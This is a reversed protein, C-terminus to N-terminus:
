GVASSLGSLGTTGDLKNFWPQILEAFEPLQRDISQDRSLDLGRTYRHFEKFHEEANPVPTNMFNLVAELQTTWYDRHVQRISADPIYARLKDTIAQKVETPLIKLNLQWPLHLMNFNTHLDQRVIYDFIEDLYYINLNNITICICFWFNKNRQRAQIFQELNAGVLDWTSSSRIYGCRDKIDDISLDFFVTKFNSLLKEHDTNWITGNTNIHLTIDKATNQDVAAQLVEFNKKILMPEAGYFDIYRTNPLWDKLTEWVGQNEDRYSATIRRWRVLYDSYSINENPGANLEWDERYWQSSVEPNCTRCKMNCTNGMKLDLIQPQDERTGLHGWAQNFYMRRSTKGAHEDDWCAQCNSHEQDNELATQIEKRTPSDWAEQLTNTDLYLQEGQANELYKRSHCCLYCRGSNHLGLGTDAIVCYLNSKKMIINQSLYYM